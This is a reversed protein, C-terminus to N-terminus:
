RERKLARSKREGQVHVLGGRATEKANSTVGNEVTASLKGDSVPVTSIASSVTNRITETRHAAEGSESPARTTANLKEM